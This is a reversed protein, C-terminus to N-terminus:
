EPFLKKLEKIFDEKSLEDDPYVNIFEQFRTKLDREALNPNEKLILDIQKRSLESLSDKLVDRSEISGNRSYYYIVSKAPEKVLHPQLDYDIVWFKVNKNDKENNKLNNFYKIQKFSNKKNQNLWEECIHLLYIDNDEIYDEIYDEISHIKELLENKNPNIRQLNNIKNKINKNNELFKETEISSCPHESFGEILKIMEPEKHENSRIAVLLKSIEGKLELAEHNFNSIKTEILVMWQRPLYKKWPQIDYLFDNLKKQQNNMEEFINELGNIIESSVDQILRTINNKIKTIKAIQELSCLTYILQIGKGNNTEKILNPVDECVRMVDEITQPCKSALADGSFYIKLSKVDLKEQKDCNVNAKGDSNIKLNAFNAQLMGEIREKEDSNEVIQEFTAAVNAGWTIGVVVHTASPNEFAYSSFYKCLKEMSVSLRQHKTKVQYIFTGRVTHSNRKTQTLYKVSGEAHVFGAMLSLKLNAEVNLKDLTQKESDHYDFWYNLSPCDNTEIYSESLTDKFLREMQFEDKRIDYLSGLDKFRGIAHREILGNPNM